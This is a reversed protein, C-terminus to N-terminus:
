RKGHQGRKMFLLSPNKLCMKVSAENVSKQYSTVNKEFFVARKRITEENLTDNSQVSPSPIYM